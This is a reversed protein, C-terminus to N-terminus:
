LSLNCNGQACSPTPDPDNKRQPPPPTPTPSMANRIVSRMARMFGWSAQSGHFATQYYFIRFLPDDAAMVGNIIREGALIGITATTGAIVGAVVGRFIPDSGTSLIIQTNIANALEQTLMAVGTGVVSGVAAHHLARILDDSMGGRSLAFIKSDSFKM